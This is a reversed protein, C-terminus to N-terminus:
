VVSCPVYNTSGGRMKYAEGVSLPEKSSVTTNPLIHLASSEICGGGGEEGGQWRGRGRGQRILFTSRRRGGCSTPSVIPVSEDRCCECKWSPMLSGPRLFRQLLWYPFFCNSLTWHMANRKEQSDKQSKLCRCRQFGRRKFCKWYNMPKPARWSEQSLLKTRRSIKPISCHSSCSTNSFNACSGSKMSGHPDEWERKCEALLDWSPLSYEQMNYFMMIFLLIFSSFRFQAIAASTISKELEGIGWWLDLLDPQPHSLPLPPLPNAWQVSLEGELHQKWIGITCILVRMFILSAIYSHKLIQYQLTFMLLDSLAGHLAIILYKETLFESCFNM